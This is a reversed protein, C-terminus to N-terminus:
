YDEFNEPDEEFGQQQESDETKRKKPNRLSRKKKLRPRVSKGSRSTPTKRAASSQCGYLSRPLIPEKQSESPIGFNHSNKRQSWVCSETGKPRDLTHGVGPRLTPHAQGRAAPRRRARDRTARNRKAQGLCKLDSITSGM